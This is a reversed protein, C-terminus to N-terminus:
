HLIIALELDHRCNNTRTTIKSSTHLHENDFDVNELENLPHVVEWGRQPRKGVIINITSNLISSLKKKLSCRSWDRWVCTTKTYMRIDVGVGCVVCITVTQNSVLSCSIGVYRLQIICILQLKLPGNFINVKVFTHHTDIIEYIICLFFILESLSLHALLNHETCISLM